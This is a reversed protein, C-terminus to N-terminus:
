EQWELTGKMSPCGRERVKFSMETGWLVCGEYHYLENKRKLFPTFKSSKQSHGATPWGHRLFQVLPSLEAHKSTWSAIQSATVPSDALYNILLVLEPPTDTTAPEVPTPLQSLANANAHEM